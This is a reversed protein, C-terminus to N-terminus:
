VYYTFIFIQIQNDVDGKSACIQFNTAKLQYKFNRATGRPLQYSFSFLGSNAKNFMPDSMM